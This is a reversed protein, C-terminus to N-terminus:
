LALHEAEMKQQHADSVIQHALYIVEEGPRTFREMNLSM